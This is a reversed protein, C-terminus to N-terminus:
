INMRSALILQRLLHEVAQEIDDPHARGALELQEDLTNPFLNRLEDIIPALETKRRKAVSPQPYDNVPPVQSKREVLDRIEQENSDMHHLDYKIDCWMHRLSHWHDSSCAGLPCAKDELKILSLSLRGCVLCPRAGRRLLDEHASIELAERVAAEESEHEDKSNAM